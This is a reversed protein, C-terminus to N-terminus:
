FLLVNVLLVWGIEHNDRGRRGCELWVKVVNNLGDLANLVHYIESLHATCLSM